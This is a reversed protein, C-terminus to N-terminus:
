IFKLSYMWNKLLFQIIFIIKTLV